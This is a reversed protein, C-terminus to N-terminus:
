GGEGSGGDSGSEVDKDDGCMVIANCYAERAKAECEARLKPDSISQCLQYNYTWNLDATIYCAGFPHPKYFPEDFYQLEGNRAGTEILMATSIANRSFDELTNFAGPNTDLVVELAEDISDLQDQLWKM